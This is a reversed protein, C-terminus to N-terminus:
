RFKEKKNDGRVFTFIFGKDNKEVLPKIKGPGMICVRDLPILYEPNILELKVVNPLCNQFCQFPSDPYCIRDEEETMNTMNINDLKLYKITKPFLNFRITLCNFNLKVLIFEELQDCRLCISSMESETLLTLHITKEDGLITLSKTHKGLYKLYKELDDLGIVARRWLRPNSVCSSITDSQCAESFNVIDQGDCYQLIETLVEAPLKFVKSCTM